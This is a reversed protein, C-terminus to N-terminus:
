LERQFDFVLTNMQEDSRHHLAVMAKVTSTSVGEQTLVEMRPADCHVTSKGFVNYLLNDRIAINSM